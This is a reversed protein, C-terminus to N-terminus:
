HGFGALFAAVKSPQCPEIFGSLRRRQATVVIEEM